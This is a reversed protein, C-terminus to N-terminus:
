KRKGKKHIERSLNFIEQMQNVTCGYHVFADDIKTPTNVIRVEIQSKAEKIKRGLIWAQKLVDPDLAIYLKKIGDFHKLWKMNFNKAGFIGVTPMFRDSTIISKKSGEVLAITDYQKVWRSNFLQIGLNAMHPRYKDNDTGMLRHRINLLKSWESDFVPITFSSHEKATPCEYCIGLLYTDILDDTFGEQYWLCRMDDTDLLKHYQIHAQSKMMRELATTRKFLEERERKARAQEAEIRRLRREEDSLQQPKDDDLWGSMGCNGPKGIRCFFYGTDFITFRDTGKCVPCPGRAYDNIIRSDLGSWRQKAIRVAEDIGSLNM